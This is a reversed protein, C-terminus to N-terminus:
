KELGWLGLLLAPPEILFTAAPKWDSVPGTDDGGGYVAGDRRTATYKTCKQTYPAYMPLSLINLAALATRSSSPIEPMVTRFTLARAPTDGMAIYRWKVSLSAKSLARM